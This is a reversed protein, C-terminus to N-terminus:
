PASPPAPAMPPAPPPEPAPLEWRLRPDSELAQAKEALGEERYFAAARVIADGVEKRTVIMSRLQGLAAVAGDFSRRAAARDGLAAQMAGVVFGAPSAGQRSVVKGLADLAEATRGAGWLAIGVDYQRYTMGPRLREASDLFRGGTEFDGKRCFQLGLERLGVCYGPDVSCAQEAYSLAASGGGHDASALAAFLLLASNHPDKELLSLGFDLLEAEGAAGELRLLSLRQLVNWREPPEDRVVLAPDGLAEMVVEGLWRLEVPWDGQEMASVLVADKVEYRTERLATFLRRIAALETHGHVRASSSFYEAGVSLVVPAAARPFRDVSCIAAQLEGVLGRFCGDAPRFSAIEGASLGVTGLFGKLDEGVDDGDPVPFPVIWTMERVVGLVSAARLWNWEHFVGAVGSHGARFLGEVDGRVQLAKLATVNEPSIDHLGASADILLLVAGTVGQAVWHPLVDAPSEVVIGRPLPDVALVPLSPPAAAATGGAARGAAFLALLLALAAPVPRPRM